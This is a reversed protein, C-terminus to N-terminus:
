PWMRNQFVGSRGAQVTAAGVDYTIFNDSYQQTMSCAQGNTCMRMQQQAWASCPARGSDRYYQVLDTTMGVYDDIWTNSYFYFPPTAYRGVIWWGGTVAFQSYGRSGAGNVTWCQDNKNSGAVEKLQRGDFPRSSNGQLTQRFQQVTAYSGGGWGVGTTLEGTPLDAPKAMSYAPNNYGGDDNRFTGAAIDCGNNRIQATITFGQPAYGGCQGQGSVPTGRMSLATTGSVFPYSGGTPTISGSMQFQWPPCGPTGNPVTGTGSISNGSLTSSITYSDGVSGSWSGTCHRCPTANACPGNTCGDVGSYQANAFNSCLM